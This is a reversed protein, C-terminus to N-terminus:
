PRTLFSQFQYSAAGSIRTITPSGNPPTFLALYIDRDNDATTPSDHWVVMMKNTVHNYRAIPMAAIRFGEDMIGDNYRMTAITHPDGSPFSLGGDVSTSMVITNGRLWVVYVHGNLPNVIVQPRHNTISGGGAHVIATSQFPSTCGGGGPRCIRGAGNTSRRLIIRNGASNPFHWEVFVVYVYGRTAPYWSVDM